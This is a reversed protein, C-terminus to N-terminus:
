YSYIEKGNFILFKCYQISNIIKTFYSHQQRCELIKRSLIDETHSYHQKNGKRLKRLMYVYGYTKNLIDERKKVTISYFEGISHCWKHSNCRPCSITLNSMRESGGYIIPDIHDIVLSDYDQCGCYVCAPHLDIIERKESRTRTLRKAM